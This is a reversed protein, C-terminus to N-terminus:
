YQAKKSPGVYTVLDSAIDLLKEMVERVAGNGGQKDAVYDAVDKVEELADSPCCSWGALRMCELDNRDNGMYAIEGAELNQEVLWKKLAKKKDECGQLVPIGVKQARAAVVSNKESSLIIMKM